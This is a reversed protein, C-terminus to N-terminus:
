FPCGDPDDTWKKSPDFKVSGQQERCQDILQLEYHSWIRERLESLLEYVAFAQEPTWYAPLAFSIAWPPTTDSATM